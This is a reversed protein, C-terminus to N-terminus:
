KVLRELLRDLKSDIRAFREDLEDRGVFQDVKAKLVAIETAHNRQMEMQRGYLVLSSALAMLGTFGVWSFLTVPEHASLGQAVIPPASTLDALVLVAGVAFAGFAELRTKTRQSM